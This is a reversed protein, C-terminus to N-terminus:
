IQADCIICAPVQYVRIRDIVESLRSRALTAGAAGGVLAALHGETLEGLRAARAAACKHRSLPAQMARMDFPATIASVKCCTPLDM